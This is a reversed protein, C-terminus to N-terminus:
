NNLTMKCFLPFHDSYRNKNDLKFYNLTFKDDFLIHDIRFKMLRTTFTWGLGTGCEEFADSMDRRITTYAYSAPLDNFDGVVMTPYPSNSISDAVIEAQKARLRYAEGLKRSFHATADKITESNFDDKLRHALTKDNETIKNSELHCNFVRIIRGNIDIDSFISSNFSSKFEVISKRIIPYKSFTANGFNSWGTNVQFHIHKYPYKKFIMILDEETLHEKKFSASYEQICLIDPDKDLMYQIVPNKKKVTHKAMMDNAYTNYSMLSFDYDANNDKDSWLHIPFTSKIIYWCLILVALSLLFNWKKLFIWLFVFAINAAITLPLILTTYAPLLLKAPSVTSAFYSMALLLAVILNATILIIKILGKGINM